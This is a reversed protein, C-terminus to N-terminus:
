CFVMLCWRTFDGGRTIFLELGHAIEHARVREIGMIDTLLREALKRGEKTLDYYVGSPKHDM